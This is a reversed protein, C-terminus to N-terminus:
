LSFITVNNGTATKNILALMQLNRLGLYSPVSSLFRQTQQQKVTIPSEFCLRQMWTYSYMVRIDSKLPHVLDLQKFKCCYIRTQKQDKWRKDVTIYWFCLTNVESYWWTNNSTGENQCTLLCPQQEPCWDDPSRIESTMKIKRLDMNIHSTAQIKM